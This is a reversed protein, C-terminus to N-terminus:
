PIIHLYKQSNTIKKVIWHQKFHDFKDSQCIDSSCLNIIYLFTFCHKLIDNSLVVKKLYFLSFVLFNPFHIGVLMTLKFFYGTPDGATLISSNWKIKLLKKIMKSYEVPILNLPFGFYRLIHVSYFNRPIIQLSKNFFVKSM